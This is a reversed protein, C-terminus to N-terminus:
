FSPAPLSGASFADAMGQASFVWSAQSGGIQRATRAYSDEACVLAPLALALGMQFDIGDNRRKSSEPNLRRGEPRNREIAIYVRHRLLFELRVDLPPVTNSKLCLENGLDRLLEKRRRQFEGPPMFDVRKIADIWRQRSEDLSMTVEQPDLNLEIARGNRGTTLIPVTLDKVSRAALLNGWVLQALLEHSLAPTPGSVIGAYELLSKGGPLVPLQKDVISSARGLAKGLVEITLSGRLVQATLEAPTHDFLSFLFGSGKMRIFVRLWAPEPEAYGLDRIVCTDVAVRTM